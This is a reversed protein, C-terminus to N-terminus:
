LANEHDIHRVSLSISFVNCKEILRKITQLHDVTLYDKRFSAQERPKNGDVINAM